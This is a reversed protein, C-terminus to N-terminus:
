PRLVAPDDIQPAPCKGLTSTTLDYVEVIQDAVHLLHNGSMRLHTPSQSISEPVKYMTGTTTNLLTNTFGRGLIVWDLMWGEGSRPETFSENEWRTAGTAVDFAVIGLETSCLVVSGNVAPQAVDHSEMRSQWEWVASGTARDLVKVSALLGERSLRDVEQSAAQEVLEFLESTEPDEGDRYGEPDLKAQVSRWAHRGWDTASTLVVLGSEELDTVRVEVDAELHSRWLVRGLADFMVCANRHAVAGAASGAGGVPPSDAEVALLGRDRDAILIHDPLLGGIVITSPGLAASHSVAGFRLGALTTEVRWSRREGAWSRYRLCLRQDSEAEKPWSVYFFGEDMMRIDRGDVDVECQSQWDADLIRLKSYFITDILVYRDSGCILDPGFLGSQQTSGRHRLTLFDAVRVEAATRSYCEFAETMRDRQDAEDLLRRALPSVAAMSGQYDFEFLAMDVEAAWALSERSYGCLSFFVLCAGPYKFGAGILKQLQGRSTNKQECKVQAVVRNGVVDVGEDKGRGTCAADDFGLWQLWSAAAQEGDEWTKILTPPPRM